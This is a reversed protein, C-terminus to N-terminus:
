TLTREVIDRLDRSLNNQSSIGVLVDKAKARRVMDMNRWSRFATMIRAAVQPNKADIQLIMDAVFQYGLGDARNFQTANSMAFGGILARTRNPNSLSFAPHHMLARVRDLVDTDATVAQLAFWKDMVLPNHQFDKEFLALAKDRLPGGAHTMIALAAFRDTMNNATSFQDFARDMAGAANGAVLLDLAANRLARLGADAAGPSYVAAGRFNAHMREAIITVHAGISRRLTMRALHIADPDVDEGIERAIDQEGPMTIALATFAPDTSGSALCEGVAEALEDHVLAPRGERVSQTSRKL